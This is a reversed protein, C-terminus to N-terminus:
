IILGEPIVDGNRYKTVNLNERTWTQTGITILMFCERIISDLPPTGLCGSPSSTYTRTQVNNSCLSWGSYQFSCPPDIKKIDKNKNCAMLIILVLTLATVINLKKM